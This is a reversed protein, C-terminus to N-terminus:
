FHTHYPVRLVTAWVVDSGELPPVSIVLLLGGAAYKPRTLALCPSVHLCLCRAVFCRAIEAVSVAVRRWRGLAANWWYLIWGPLQCGESCKACLRVPPFEATPRHSLLDGAPATYFFVLGWWVVAFRHRHLCRPRALPPPEMTQARCNCDDPPIELLRATHPHAQSRWIAEQFLVHSSRRCTRAAAIHERRPRIKVTHLISLNVM